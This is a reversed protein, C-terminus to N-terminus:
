VVAASIDPGEREPLDHVGFTIIKHDGEESGGTSSKSLKSRACCIKRISLSGTDANVSTILTSAEVGASKVAKHM